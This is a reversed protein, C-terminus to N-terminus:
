LHWARHEAMQTEMDMNLDYVEMVRKMDGPHLLWEYARERSEVYIPFDTWDFTDCLIIMHTNETGEALRFWNRLDEKSAAM